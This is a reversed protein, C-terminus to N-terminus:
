RNRARADVPWRDVVTGGRAVVLEEALNVVPCVHNPVVQLVDGVRPRDGGRVEVIAHHDYVTVIVAHPHTPIAGHGELTPPRDKALTKGGADLVFQGDVATSVVTTAVTLAIGAPDFAGLATQQRDGFVFTGPREETVGDRASRRATPTSGASVVDVVHGARRLADAAARLADVEDQAAPAGAAPSRYSHGGHTFVGRVVLGAARAADAVRVATAADPVGTRHEGADVEVLVELARGAGAVAAGLATAGDVGDVGVRLHCRDLLARLRPAKAASAWVPYAVFLDEIGAAAFVEAEGLTATTIGVAGAALQRRAVAVSKHTKAHPRLAVGAGSLTSVMSRVNADLADVDVLLAPTDLDGPLPWVPYTAETTVQPEEDDARRVTGAGRM